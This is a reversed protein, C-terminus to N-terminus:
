QVAPKRGGARADVGATGRCPTGSRRGGSESIAISLCADYRSVGSDGARGCPAGLRRRWGAASGRCPSAIGRAGFNQARESQPSSTGLPTVVTRFVFALAVTLSPRCGCRGGAGFRRSVGVPRLQTALHHGAIMVATLNAVERVRANTIAHICRCLGKRFRSSIPPNTIPIAMKM